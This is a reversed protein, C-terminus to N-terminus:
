IERNTFTGVLTNFATPQIEPTDQQPVDGQNGQDPVTSDPPTDQSPQDSPLQQEPEDGGSLGIALGIVLALVAVAIGCIIAIKKVGLRKILSPSESDSQSQFFQDFFKM